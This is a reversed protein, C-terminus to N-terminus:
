LFEVRPFALILMPNVLINASFTQPSDNLTTKGHETLRLASMRRSRPRRGEVDLFCPSTVDDLKELSHPLFIRVFTRRHGINDFIKLGYKLIDLLARGVLGRRKM